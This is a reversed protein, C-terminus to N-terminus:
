GVKIDRQGWSLNRVEGRTRKDSYGKTTLVGTPGDMRDVTVSRNHTESSVDPGSSTAGSSSFAFRKAGGSGELKTSSFSRFRSEVAGDNKVSYSRSSAYQRVREGGGSLAKNGGYTLTRSTEIPRGQRTTEHTLLEIAHAGSAHASEYRI